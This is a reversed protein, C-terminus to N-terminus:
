ISPRDYTGRSNREDRNLPTGVDFEWQPNAFMKVIAARADERSIGVIPVLTAAPQGHSLIELNERAAIARDLIEPNKHIEQLTATM